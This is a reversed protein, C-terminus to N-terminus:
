ITNRMKRIIKKLNMNIGGLYIKKLSESKQTEGYYGILENQVLRFIM